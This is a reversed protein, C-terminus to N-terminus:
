VFPRHTSCENPEAHTYTLKTCKKTMRLLVVFAYHGITKELEQKAKAMAETSLALALKLYYKDFGDFLKHSIEDM